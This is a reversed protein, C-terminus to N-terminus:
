RELAQPSIEQPPFPGVTLILLNGEAALDKEYDEINTVYPQNM